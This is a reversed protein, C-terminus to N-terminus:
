FHHSLDIPPPPPAAIATSEKWRSQQKLFCYKIIKRDVRGILWRLFVRVHAQNTSQHQQGSRCVSWARFLSFHMDKSQENASFYYLFSWRGAKNSSQKPTSIPVVLVTVRCFRRSTRGIVLTYLDLSCTTETLSPQWDRFLEDLSM